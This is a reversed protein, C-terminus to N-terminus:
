IRCVGKNYIQIRMLIYAAIKSRLTWIPRERVPMEYAVNHAQKYFLHCAYKPM